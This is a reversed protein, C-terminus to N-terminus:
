RGYGLRSDHLRGSRRTRALLGLLAGVDVDAACCEGDSGAQHRQWMGIGHMTAGLVILAAGISGFVSAFVAGLGVGLVGAGVSVLLEVRKMRGITDVRGGLQRAVVIAGRAALRM